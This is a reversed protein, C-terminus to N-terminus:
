QIGRFSWATQNKEAVKIVPCSILPENWVWCVRVAVNSDLNCRQQEWVSTNNEKRQWGLPRGVVRFRKGGFWVAESGEDTWFFLAPGLALCFREKMKAAM